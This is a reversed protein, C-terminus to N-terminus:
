EATSKMEYARALFAFLAGDIGPEDKVLRAFESHLGAHTKATKGNRQLLLAEAAHYVRDM